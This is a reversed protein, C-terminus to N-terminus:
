GSLEVSQRYAAHLKHSKQGYVIPIAKHNITSVPVIEQISNTVFVEEAAFLDELQYAGEQWRIELRDALSLVHNRTIGNLMGTSPAPTYLVEDKVWFINSVVGECIYGDQTLFLGEVSPDNGVELKALANNLYNHSKFRITGEMTQRPISVIQLKKPVPPIVIPAVPKAFVFLSPENYGNGQLGIGENGATVSLRVYADRLHNASLTCQVAERLEDKTWNGNIRVHTLSEMLRHCHEEWLFINENYVRMTEFLGIGYLFGHDMVSLQAQEVPVLEGNVYVIM